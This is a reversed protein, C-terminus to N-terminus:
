YSDEISYVLCYLAFFGILSVGTYVVTLGRYAFIEADYRRLRTYEALSYQAQESSHAYLQGIHSKSVPSSFTGPHWGLVLADAWVDLTQLFWTM